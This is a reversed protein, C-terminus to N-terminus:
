ERGGAKNNIKILSGLKNLWLAVEQSKGTPRSQSIFRNVSQDGGYRLSNIARLRPRM